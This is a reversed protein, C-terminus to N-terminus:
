TAIKFIHSSDFKIDKSYEIEGNDIKKKFIDWYTENIVQSKKFGFKKLIKNIQKSSGKIEMYIGFPLEDISIYIDDLKWLQRYKEMVLQNTLGIKEFIYKLEEPSEIEIERKKRQFYDSQCVDTKEKITLVNEFGTKTRIFIGNKSLRLDEYDYRVTLEFNGGIFIASQGRLEKLFKNFDQLEYKIQQDNQM